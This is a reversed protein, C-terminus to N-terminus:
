GVQINDSDVCKGGDLDGLRQGSMPTPRVTHGLFENAYGITESTIVYPLGPRGTWNQFGPGNFWYLEPNRTWGPQFVVTREDVVEATTQNAWERPFQTMFDARRDPTPPRMPPPFYTNDRIEFHLHALAAIGTTDINGIKRGQQIFMFLSMRSVFPGPGALHFYRSTYQWSALTQRDVAQGGRLSNTVATWPRTGDDNYHVIDIYNPNIDSGTTGTPTDRHIGMLVGEQCALVPHLNAINGFGWVSGRSYRVFDIAFASSGNHSLPENYYFGRWGDGCSSALGWLFGPVVLATNLAGQYAGGAIYSESSRWPSRINMRMDHNSRRSTAGVVAAIDETGASTYKSLGIGTWEWYSAFKTLTIVAEGVFLRGRWGTTLLVIQRPTASIPMRLVEVASADLERRLIPVLASFEVFEGEGCTAGLTFHTESALELLSSVDRRHFSSVIDDTLREPDCHALRRVNSLRRANRRAMHRTTPIGDSGSSLRAAMEFSDAAEKIREMEQLTSGLRFYCEAKAAPAQIREIMQRYIDVAASPRHSLVAATAGAFLVPTLITGEAKLDWSNSFDIAAEYTEFYRESVFFNDVYWFAFLPGLRPFAKAANLLESNNLDVTEACRADQAALSLEKWVEGLEKNPAAKQTAQHSLSRQIRQTTSKASPFVTHPCPELAISPGFSEGELAYPRIQSGATGCCDGDTGLGPTTSEAKPLNEYSRERTKMEKGIRSVTTDGFTPVAGAPDYPRGIEQDGPKGNTPVGRAIFSAGKTWVSSAPLAGTGSPMIEYPKKM